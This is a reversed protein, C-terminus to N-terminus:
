GCLDRLLAAFDAFCFNQGAKRGERGKQAFKATLIKKDSADHVPCIRRM